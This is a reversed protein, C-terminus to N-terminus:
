PEGSAAVWIAVWKLLCEHGSVGRDIVAVPDLGSAFAVQHLAAVTAEGVAQVEPEHPPPNLEM